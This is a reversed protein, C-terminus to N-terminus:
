RAAEQWVAENFAQRLALMGEPERRRPHVRNTLLVAFAGVEPDCWLSTGTFGTHGFARAGAGAGASSGESALEWGLGRRVGEGGGHERTALELLAPSAFPAELELWARAYRALDHATGFLGAHGAVGEFVFANEDHVEGHLVRGRWGCDETAAALEAPVPGFSTQTMGLPEFVQQRSFADLRLGSVREVVAGLLMFGLDSYRYRGAPHELRSQLVNALATLRSSAEAFVPRWASLGSTHALLARLPVEAVSPTQFWGANAFFRGVPDELAVEGVEVLALVSPLTAVVKTLSALDFRTEEEVAEVGGLRKVGACLTGLLAGKRGWVAVAGPVVRAAVAGRVVEGPATHITNASM